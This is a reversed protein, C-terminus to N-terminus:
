KLGEAMLENLRKESKPGLVPDAIVATAIMEATGDSINNQIKIENLKDMAKKANQSYIGEKAYLQGAYQLLATYEVREDASLNKIENEYIKVQVEHQKELERIQEEMGTGGGMGMGYDTETETEKTPTTESKVPTEKTFFPALTKYFPLMVKGFQEMYNQLKKPSNLLEKSDNLKKSEEIFKQYEEGRPLQYGGEQIKKVLDRQEPTLKSLAEEIKNALESSKEAEVIKEANKNTNDIVNEVAKKSQEPIKSLTEKLIKISTSATEQIELTLGQINEGKQALLNAKVVASDLQSQFKSLTKEAIDLKGAEIMKQYEALRVGALHIFQEAKNKSNFTFFSQISEKWTKVFYFPSDPTLGADPLSTNAASAITGLIFFAMVILVAPKKTKM